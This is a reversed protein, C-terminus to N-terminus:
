ADSNGQSVALIIIVFVVALVIVCMAFKKQKCDEDDGEDSANDNEINQSRRIVQITQDSADGEFTSIVIANSTNTKGHVTIATPEHKVLAAAEHTTLHYCLINNISLVKDGASLVSDAFLSNLRLLRFSTLINDCFDSVFPVFVLISYM